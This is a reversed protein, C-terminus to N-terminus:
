AGCKGVKSLLWKRANVWIRRNHPELATDDALTLVEEACRMAQLERAHAYLERFEPYILDLTLDDSASVPADDRQLYEPKGAKKVFSSAM